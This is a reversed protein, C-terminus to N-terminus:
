ALASSAYAPWWDKGVPSGAVAASTAGCQRRNELGGGLLAINVSSIESGSAAMSLIITQLVTAHFQLSSAGNM